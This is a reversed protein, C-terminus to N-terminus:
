FHYGVDIKLAYGGSFDPTSLSLELPGIISNAGVSLAYGYKLREEDINFTWQDALHAVNWGARLYINKHIKLQLQSRLAIVNSARLQQADHGMFPRQRLDFVSNQAMGGLYYSYHLPINGSSYGTFLEGSLNLTPTLPLTSFWNGTLQTFNSLSGWKRNSILAKFKLTHGKTPFYPRNLTSFDVKFFPKLLFSTNELILTNGVAQNLNYIESELGAAVNTRQLLRVSVSPRFTLREVNITSLAQGQNYLDIPSRQFDIGFNIKSLPALTLPTSYGTNLELIEGARLQMTLRDNWFLNNTLSAGFLLSAKYESDYRVSFGAYEQKKQQFELVLQNKPSHSSDLLRYSIQSFLGSSYLRNIKKEIDGLTLKTPPHIDLALSAQQQLLGSINSYSVSSVLLSDDQPSRISQFRSAAPQHTALYAKIEPVAKRAAQEGRRIIEKIQNQNYSFSSFNKIDPRIYFDTKQKQRRNSEMQHFGVSQFLVDVFTDLSDVSKLPEGVDSAIVVDAGLEKVDEAPINRAVGGDIYTQGDITVPKFITPIAISARVADPLYGNTFTHANGNALNTAVAAFPIPLNSFDRVDHYPLMLRYLLMAINQGDILGTPLSLRKGNYPFTFLYTDKDTVSNAINQPNIRYSDNFLISWDTSLAIDEIEEPTYGIAYLSGVVSGMSTGSVMHIPIGAQEFIKLVGIHAFGKAGGGSLALGVSIPKRASSSDPSKNAQQAQGSLSIFLLFLAIFTGKFPPIHM